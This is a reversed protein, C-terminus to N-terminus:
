IYKRIHQTAKIFYKINDPENITHGGNTIYLTSHDMLKSIHYSMIPPTIIDYRGVILYTPIHKIKHIHDYIYNKDLFYHNMEYYTSLIVTSETDKFSEQIKKGALNSSESNGLLEIIRKRTKNNKNKTTILKFSKNLMTISDTTPKLKLLELIEGSLEPYMSDLVERNLTLDYFGRLIIGNVCKSHQIAYLVALSSGWSGGSVIWKDINLQKRIYEMDDILNQTKNKETHNLPTSKGCGRQDFMILKYKSLNFLRPILPDIAGGPGGHCYIVPIGNDKGYLEVNIKVPFYKLQDVEYMTRFYPKSKKYIIDELHSYKNTIYVDDILEADKHQIDSGFEYSEQSTDSKILTYDLSIINQKKIKKLVFVNMKRYAKKMGSDIQLSLPYINMFAKAAHKNLIYGFTGWAIYPKDCFYKCKYNPLPKYEHCGVILCDYKPLDSIYKKLKPIFKDEIFADDELILVYDDNNCERIIKLYCERHSLACGIAGLTMKGYLKAEPNLADQIAEESIIDRSLERINIKKGDVADIRTVEGKFNLKNIENLIHQHRDPRRELNIYYIKTFM